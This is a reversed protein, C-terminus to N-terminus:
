LNGGTKTNEIYKVAEYVRRYRELHPAFRERDESPEFCESIRVSSMAADLSPYAGAATAALLITGCAGAERRDITQLEANWIDAKMRNWPASRSGGGTARMSSVTIGADRLIDLCLRMEYCVGELLSQYVDHFGHELRLGIIAGSADNDMYPTAAGAFHPLVLLGTPNRRVQEDLLAFVSKGEAIARPELEAGFCERFWQLLAGGTYIYAYTVYLGSTAPVVAFSGRLMPAPEPIRDFVPTVCEVTGSGNVASGARLAGSGIACAVQDHCGLVVSVGEGLGLERAVDTRVTGLCTGAPLPQPLLARDTESAALVEDCWRKQRVDLMMTRAALSYDAAAEGCLRFAAYAAVPLIKAIKGYLEPENQRYWMLKPLFYAPSATHGTLEFIREPALRSALSRSEAAGRQDTYLMVPCLPEGDRGVLVCSEGFSTVCVAEIKQPSQRAAGGLTHRVADWLLGADLEHRGGERLAPYARYSEALLRGDPTMVSCKCGSTGIDIGALAM